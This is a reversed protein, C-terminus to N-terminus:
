PYPVGEKEAAEVDARSCKGSDTFGPGRPNLRYVAGSQAAVVRCEGGVLAMQSSSAANRVQTVTWVFGEYDTALSVPTNMWADATWTGDLNRMKESPPDVPEYLIAGAPKVTM